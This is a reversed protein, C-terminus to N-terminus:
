RSAIIMNDIYHPPLEIRYDLVKVLAEIGKRGSSMLEYTNKPVFIFGGSKVKLIADLIIKVKDAENKDILSKNLNVIVYDFNGKVDNIENYDIQFIDVDDAFQDTVILGTGHKEIKKIMPIIESLYVDDEKLEPYATDDSLILSFANREVNRLFNLDHDVKAKDENVLFVYGAATNLDETKKFFMDHYTANVISSGHFAKLKKEINVIPASRVIMNKPTIFFKLTGHAYLSYRKILEDFFCKPKLYSDLISDTEHQGSNPRFLGCAHGWWM